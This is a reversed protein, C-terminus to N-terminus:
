ISGSIARRSPLSSVASVRWDVDIAAPEAWTVAAIEALRTVVPPGPACVM